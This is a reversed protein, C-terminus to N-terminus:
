YKGMKFPSLSFHMKAIMHICKESGEFVKESGKTAAFLPPPPYCICRTAASAMKGNTEFFLIEQLGVGHANSKGKVFTIQNTPM